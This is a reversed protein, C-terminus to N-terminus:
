ARLNGGPRVAEAALRDAEHQVASLRAAIVSPERQVVAGQLQELAQRMALVGCAAAAGQLKHVSQWMADWNKDGYQSRLTSLQDSLGGLLEDFLADAVAVDGGALAIAQARDRLCTAAQSETLLCTDAADGTSLPLLRDLAARLQAEHVPKVLWADFLDTRESHQAPMGADATLAVMPVRAYQPKRRLDRAAELGTRGPMHIDLLLLDVTQNMAVELVEDGDHALLPTAGYSRLLNDMLRLNIANDDAILVSLGTLWREGVGADSARERDGGHRGDLMATIAALLSKRRVPYSQVFCGRHQEISRTLAPDVTPLLVGIPADSLRRLTSLSRELLAKDTEVQCRLLWLDPRASEDATPARPYLVADFGARDLMSLLASGSRAHADIVIATRRDTPTKRANSDAVAQDVDFPLRVRFSAGLGATSSVEITGHMAEVLSRSISLGLGTGGYLRRTSAPGQCFPQFLSEIVEDSIGVGTDSVEFQLTCHDHEHAELWAHVVVEGHDTFKVANGILNTLVHRLRTVDGFLRDPVDAEVVPILDLGKEQAQPTLLGTADEIADRPDFLVRELQLRGAEMESFDLIDNIIALLHNASRIITDLFEQQTTDLQSKQLLGAFGLVGNMPTRIEHSMNALFVSKARNAERERHQARELDVNKQELQALAGRLNATAEEVQQQLNQASSTIQESMSNFGGQLEGLEGSSLRRIRIDHEGRQVRDVADRLEDIPRVIQRAVMATLLLALAVSLLTIIAANRLVRQRALVQAEDGLYVIVEGMPAEAGPNEADGLDIIPAIVDAKFGTLLRGKREPRRAEAVIVDDRNRIVVRQIDESSHLLQESARRLMAGDGNFLGIVALSALQQAQADGRAAHAATLDDFRANIAYSSLLAALLMIPLLATLFIRAFISRPRSLKM